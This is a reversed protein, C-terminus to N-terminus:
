NIHLLIIKYLKCSGLEEDRNTTRNMEESANFNASLGKAKEIASIIEKEKETNKGKGKNRKNDENAKGKNGGAREGSKVAREGLKVARESGKKKKVKPSGETSSSVVKEAEQRYKDKTVAYTALDETEKALLHYDDVFLPM